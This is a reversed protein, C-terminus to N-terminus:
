PTEPDFLAALEKADDETLRVDLARVVPDLHEPRRAGAVVATVDPQALVWAIALTAMDVERREAEQAFRDLADFVRDTQLHAYAEPRQAMRSDPPPAEGRKYKGTLWGGALPSFAIYGVELERCLPLLEREDGRDLLSFSNQVLCPGGIRLAARVHDADFNSVGYAKVLSLETLGEFTAMTEELPTDPDFQHALYVDVHTVRLRDLSSELQRTIRRRSLGRDAGPAMPNFTKTMIFPTRGRGSIWKGIVTESAGGGYADATDFATLGLEWAADMIRFAEDENEGQGFLEPASGIGGFNGCGLIIPPVQLGSRGLERPDM